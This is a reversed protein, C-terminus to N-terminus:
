KIVATNKRDFSLAVAGIFLLGKLIQQAESSMNVLVLGNSVVAMMLSGILVAKFKSSWGGSFPIGGLLLALM